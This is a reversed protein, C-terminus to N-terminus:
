IARAIEEFKEPLNHEDRWAFVQTMEAETAAVDVLGPAELGPHGAWGPHQRLLTLAVRCEDPEGVCEFPKLTGDAGVLEVFGALQSEDALLDKGGWIALLEERPLFPALILFVFRCKPCDGCWTAQEGVSMRYARNCSTFIGHYARHDAFRRAVRLETLPRLLSFYAPGREPLVSRLLTEFGIGKSWQHNVVQGHWELNGYSASAENSFVVADCGTAVAALLAILSNIATVPVHGNPAGAANLDLLRPDIRRAVTHLPRDAVRATEDQPRKPNVAVLQVDVGASRLSEITVISDKGGGVPVLARAIAAASPGRRWREPLGPADIEPRLAEPLGNTYAFEGLGGLLVQTLFDRELATLGGPVEFRCPTFAKYYSLSAALSLLRVLPEAVEAPAKDLPAPLTITEVLQIPGDDTTGVYPLQIVAGEVIPPQVEFRPASNM